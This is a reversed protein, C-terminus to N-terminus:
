LLTIVKEIFNLKSDKMGFKKRSLTSSAPFPYGDARLVNYLHVRTITDLAVEFTTMVGSGTNNKGEFARISIYKVYETHKRKMM